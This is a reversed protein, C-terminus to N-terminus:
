RNDLQRIASRLASSASEIERDCHKSIREVKENATAIIQNATLLAGERISEATDQADSLTLEPFFDSKICSELEAKIENLWPGLYSSEGLRAITEELIKIEQQKTM